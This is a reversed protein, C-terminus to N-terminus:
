PLRGNWGLIGARLAEVLERKDPVFTAVEFRHDEVCDWQRPELALPDRRRDTTSYYDDFKFRGGVMCESPAIWANPVGYADAVILGHLSQSLVRRCAGISRIVELPHRRVDIVEVGSPVSRLARALESVHPVVAIRSRDGAPAPFAVNVLVGPDGLLCPGDVHAASLRGRVSLVGCHVKASSGPPRLFGSGAVLSHPAATELISGMGLVHPTGKSALRVRRALLAEWLWPNLDDGFNPRGVHWRVPVGSRAFSSWRFRRALKTFKQIM